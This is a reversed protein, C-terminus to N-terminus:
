HNAFNGSVGDEHFLSTHEGHYNLAVTFTEYLITMIQLNSSMELIGLYSKRHKYCFHYPITITTFLNITPLYTPKPGPLPEPDEEFM